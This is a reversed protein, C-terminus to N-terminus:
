RHVRHETGLRTQSKAVVHVAAKGPEETMPHELCSYELPNGHGVGPSRGSEPISSADRKELM